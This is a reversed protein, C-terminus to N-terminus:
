MGKNYYVQKVLDGAETKLERFEADLQETKLESRQQFLAISMPLAFTLSATCLALELLKSAVNHKPWLRLKELGFNMLAPFFLVPLPLIFRSVATEFIARQGAVKSKGYTVTGSEDQINIGEELEKFRMLILNGAGAFAAAFYNLCANALILKSGRM